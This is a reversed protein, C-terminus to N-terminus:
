HQEVKKLYLRIFKNNFQILCKEMKGVRLSRVVCVFIHAVKRVCLTRLSGYKIKKESLTRM